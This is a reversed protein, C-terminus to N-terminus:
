KRTEALRSKLLAIRAAVRDVALHLDDVDQNFAEVETASPVARLEESLYEGLLREFTARRQQLWTKGRRIVQATQHGVVDGLVQSLAEEWDIDLQQAIKQLEILLGTSGFVEVGSDALNVRASRLLAALAPASGQLRTTIAGDYYGQVAVGEANPVIYFLGRPATLEVALVQGELRALAYRSGPDYRLAAQVATELAACVATHLTPELM